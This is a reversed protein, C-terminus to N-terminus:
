GKKPAVGGASKLLDKSTNKNTLKTTVPSAKGPGNWQQNPLSMASVGTNFRGVNPAILQDRIHQQGVMQNMSPLDTNTSMMGFNSSLVGRGAFRARSQPSMGSDLFSSQRAMLADYVNPNMGFNRGHIQNSSMGSFSLSAQSQAMGTTLLSSPFRNKLAQLQQEQQRQRIGNNTSLPTSRLHRQLFLAENSTQSQMLMMAERQRLEELLANQNIATSSTGLFTGSSHSPLPTGGAALIAKIREKHLLEEQALLRQRYEDQTSLAAVGKMSVAPKTSASQATAFAKKMSPLSIKTTSSKKYTGEDSQLSTRSNSSKTKKKSLEKSPKTSRITKKKEPSSKTDDGLDFNRGKDKPSKSSETDDYHGGHVTKVTRSHQNRNSTSRFAHGVKYYAKSRTVEIWYPTDDSTIHREMFKGGDSKVRRLVEEIYKGKENRPVADYKPRLKDILNLM